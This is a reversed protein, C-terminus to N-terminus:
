ANIPKVADPMMARRHDSLPARCPARLDFLRDILVDQWMQGIWAQRKVTTDVFGFRIITPQKQLFRTAFLECVKGFPMAFERGAPQALHM